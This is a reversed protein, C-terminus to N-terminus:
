YRHHLGPLPRMMRSIFPMDKSMQAKGMEVAKSLLEASPTLELPSLTRKFDKVLHAYPRNPKVNLAALRQMPLWLPTSMKPAFGNLALIFTNRTGIKGQHVAKWAAKAPLNDTLGGDILRFIGRQELLADLLARMRADERLVDYHIIGPLACSFGAADLADFGETGYDLGVHLPAMIEPRLFFEALTALSEQLKRALALPDLANPVSLLSEYFGVPHPLMGRKIGSMAILTPIPLDSLKLGGAASEAETEFHRGLSARLYLRLAAPLGYRSETSLARFLKKWSLDQLATLTQAHRYGSSRARLLCFIAGVSSGALLAPALGAEDLAAFAGLYV